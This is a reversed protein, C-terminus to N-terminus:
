IHWEFSLMLFVMKRSGILIMNILQMLFSYDLLQWSDFCSPQLCCLNGPKQVLGGGDYQSESELPLSPSEPQRNTQCRWRSLCILWLQTGSSVPQQSPSLPSTSCSTPCSPLIFVGTQKESCFVHQVKYELKEIRINFIKLWEGFCDWKNSVAKTEVKTSEMDQLVPQKRFNM